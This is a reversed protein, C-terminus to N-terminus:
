KELFYYWVSGGIISGTMGVGFTNAFPCKCTTTKDMELEGDNTTNSKKNDTDTNTDTNTDSYLNYLSASLVGTMISVCATTILKNDGM